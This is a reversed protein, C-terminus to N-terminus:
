CQLQPHRLKRCQRGWAGTMSAVPMDVVKDLFQVQPLVGCLAPWRWTGAHDTASAYWSRNGQLLCMSFWRWMKWSRHYLVGRFPVWYPTLPQWAGSGTGGTYKVQGPSGAPAGLFPGLSALGRSGSVLWGGACHVVM